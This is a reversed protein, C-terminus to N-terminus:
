VVRNGWFDLFSNELNASLKHFGASCSQRCRHRKAPCSASCDWVCSTHAPTKGLSYHIRQEQPCRGRSVSTALLVWKPGKQPRRLATIHRTSAPVISVVLFSFTSRFDLINRERGVLFSGGRSHRRTGYGELLGCAM